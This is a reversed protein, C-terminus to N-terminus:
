IFCEYLRMHFVYVCLFNASHPWTLSCTKTMPAQIPLPLLPLSPWPRKVPTPTVVQAWTYDTRGTSSSRRGPPSQISVSFIDREPALLVVGLVPNEIAIRLTPNQETLDMYFSNNIRNEPTPLPKSPYIHNTRGNQTKSKESNITFTDQVPLHKKQFQLQM